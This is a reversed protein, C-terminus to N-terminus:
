DNETHVIMSQLLSITKKYDNFNEFMLKSMEAPSIIYDNLCHIINKDSQSLKIDYFFEMMEILTIRDCKKFDAIIDIRGPRILAHDLKNPYNSTMVVIRGPIELVGDLLNLLFSLDIKEAGSTSNNNLIEDKRKFSDELNKLSRETVLDSQCDIDELVYIRQDLPIYYKETQCTAINLIMIMENFFLNELQIKTIDNNLNINIIHRKTENALCKITSTKGSGPEGSLLLGLNYPIGKTDYWKRNKIFFDVRKKVVSIEPGFLNTFKRNTEFMKMTFSCNNPLKTYDKEGNMSKPANIPHQNFYYIKDGLKNKMKITYEHSIKNLFSRLEHMTKTYSFLEVTQEIDAKPDQENTVHNEKLKIFLEDYIEIVDNQNLIFNQRKFSVHKTNDNTTIYDLLAQGFVNEHDSINIQITVSSTKEKETVNANVINNLLKNSKLNSESYQLIKNILEPFHKIFVDILQTILFVYVIEFISGGDTKNASKFLILTLLNTKLSDMMNNGAFHTPLANMSM